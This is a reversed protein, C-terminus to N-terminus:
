LWQGGATLADSFTGDEKDAWSVLGIVRRRSLELGLYRRLEQFTTEINWRGTYTEIVQTVPWRVAM